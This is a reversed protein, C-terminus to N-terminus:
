DPKESAHQQIAEAAVGVDTVLVNYCPFQIVRQLAKIKESGGAVLIVRQKGNRAIKQMDEVTVGVIKDSIDKDPQGNERLPAYLIQVVGSDDKTLKDVYSEIALQESIRGYSKNTLNGAGLVFIDASLIDRVFANLGWAEKFEERLETAKGYFGAPLQFAHGSILHKAGSAVLQAKRGLMTFYAVITHPYVPHLESDGFLVTPYIELTQRIPKDDLQRQALLDILDEIVRSVTTGCSLAITIKERTPDQEILSLIAEMVQDAGVSGLNDINKTDPGNPVVLATEVNEGLIDKLKEGLSFQPPPIVRPKLIEREDALKLWRSVTSTSKGMKGAIDQQSSGNAYLRAAQVVHSIETYRDREGSRQPPRLRSVM